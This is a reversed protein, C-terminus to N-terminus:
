RSRSSRVTICPPKASLPIEWEAGAADRCGVSVEFTYLGEDPVPPCEIDVFFKGDLSLSASIPLMDSIDPARNLQTLTEGTVNEDRGDDGLPSNYVIRYWLLVDWVPVKSQSLLAGPIQGSACVTFCLSPATEVTTGDASSFTQAPDSSLLLSASLAPRPTFFDRPFPVPVLLVGDIVELLAAARVLPDLSGDMPKVVLKDLRRMLAAMPHKFHDGLRWELSDSESKSVLIDPFVARAAHALFQALSQLLRLSSRSQGHLFGLGHQQRLEAYRSALADFCRVTNRLHLYSRTHKEPGIGTLRMERTLQRLITILDLFDLRLLLFKIQFSFVDSSDAGFTAISQLRSLASHLAKAANPIGMAGKGALSHEAVAIQELASIWLYRKESMPAVLLQQWVETAVAFNGSSLAQRALRYKEWNDIETSSAFKRITEEMKDVTTVFFRAQRSCLLAWAIYPSPKLELLSMLNDVEKLAVAPCNQSVSLLLRPLSGDKKDDKAIKNSLLEYLANAFPPSQDAAVCVLDELLWLHADDRELLVKVTELLSPAYYDELVESRSFAHVLLRAAQKVIGSDTHRLMKVACEILSILPHDEKGDGKPRPKQFYFL